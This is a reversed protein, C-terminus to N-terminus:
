KGTRVLKSSIAADTCIRIVGERPPERIRGQQGSGVEGENEKKQKGTVEDYEVWEQQAKGIIERAEGKQQEFRTRNRAKWIQWLINVILNIREKGKTMAEAQNM